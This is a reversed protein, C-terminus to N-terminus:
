FINFTSVSIRSAGVFVVSTSITRTSKSLCCSTNSSSDDSEDNNAGNARADYDHDDDDHDDDDNGLIALLTVLVM